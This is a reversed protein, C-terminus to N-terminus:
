QYVIGDSKIAARASNGAQDVILVNIPTHLMHDPTPYDEGICELDALEHLRFIQIAGNSSVVCIVFPLQM